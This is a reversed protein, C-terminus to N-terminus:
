LPKIEVHRWRITGGRAGKPGSGYQLAILGEKFKSDPTSATVM